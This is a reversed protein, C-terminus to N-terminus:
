LPITKLTSESDIQKLEDENNSTMSLIGVATKKSMVGAETASTVIEVAEKLDEPLISNFEVDFYLSKAENAMATNTTKVIGSIIVNLLREVMTRNDGENMSSKLMADLFMLKLAIGSINGLGKVNDFSLNPTQSISFIFDELKELELKQSEAATDATLFKAEGHIPKGDDDMTIPFQLVKGNDDKDPFSEVKGFIQLLPYATYDNSAGLKSMTTEIRDIMEKVDYWEPFDQSVYVIPIRDFGHAKGPDSMEMKGTKDSIHYFSKEDWIEVHNITKDDQDVNEYQWMFLIMNGEANFYPTMIGSKNDLLKVKIEKKQSKLSMGVLIKNLLSTESVDSIYMQIAGQTESKKLKVLKQILSDLRNVKWLEKVMKALNNDESPTFTVPKGFEFAASTTVIKKAFNIPIKVAKVLKSKEGEGVNKDKQINGVQTDRLTRDHDIYEKRYGKIEDVSKQQKKIKEIAQEPNSKLLEIITEM